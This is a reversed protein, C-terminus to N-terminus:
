IDKKIKNWRIEWQGKQQGAEQSSLWTARWMDEHQVAIELQSPKTGCGCPGHFRWCIFIHSIHLIHQIIKSSKTFTVPPLLNNACSVWLMEFSSSRQFNIRYRLFGHGYQLSTYMATVKSCDKPDDKWCHSNQLLNELTKLVTASSSFMKCSVDMQCIEKSSNLSVSVELRVRWSKGM